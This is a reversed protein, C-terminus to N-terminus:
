TGNIAVATDSSARSLYDIPDLKCCRSNISYGAKTDIYTVHLYVMSNPCDILQSDTPTWQWSPIGNAFKIIDSTITIGKDIKRLIPVLGPRLVTYDIVKPTTAGISYSRLPAFLKTDHPIKQDKWLGAVGLSVLKQGLFFVISQISPTVGQYAVGAATETPRWFGDRYLQQTDLDNPDLFKSTSWGYVMSYLEAIELQSLRLNKHIQVALPNNNMTPLLMFRVLGAMDYTPNYLGRSKMPYDDLRANLVVQNTEMRSFGYDAIKIRYGRDSVNLQQGSALPYIYHAYRSQEWFLNDGHLDYHTFKYTEQAVSLAHAVQFLVMYLDVKENIVNTLDTRYKPM